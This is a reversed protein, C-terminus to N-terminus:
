LYDDEENSCSVVIKKSKTKAKISAMSETYKGVNNPLGCVRGQKNWKEALQLDDEAKNRNRKSAVRKHNSKKPCM